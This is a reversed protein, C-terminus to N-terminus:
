GEQAAREALPAVERSVGADILLEGLEVAASADCPERQLQAQLELVRSCVSM